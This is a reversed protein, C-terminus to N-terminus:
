LVRRMRELAQRCTELDPVLALRLHGSGRSGFISGPSVVVGVEALADTAELDDRVEVWLYLGARSAVVSLGMKELGERLLARKASFVRRREEVHADDSWAAVAGQQVFEPSATGTSTRLSFIREIAAPDGVVAGSRYGTMGSRKSLSLFSLVGKTGRGALQLVSPAPHDDEGYLDLYCEDSCLLVEHERCRDVLGQLIGTSLVAGTPNSPTCIWLMTLRAWLHRPVSEATTMFSRDAEVPVPDAGALAAGRAYVPYGPDPYGVADGRDRSVFALHASFIAEKAGSTPIVQTDPDVEVGFRRKVYGAVAERLSALGRTTPYQSVSPVAARVAEPIVPWTPEI